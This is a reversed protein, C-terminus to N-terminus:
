SLRRVLDERVADAIETATAGTSLLPALAPALAAVLETVNVQGGTPQARVAAIINAEDDSLGDALADLKVELRQVTRAADSTYFLTDGITESVTHTEFYQPTGVPRSRSGPSEYTLKDSWSLTVTDEQLGALVRARPIILNILEAIRRDGPCVKGPTTTWVEGGPVLGGFAYDTWNGPVGQRHYAVGRRTTRSDPVLELPVGHVRHCWALIQAISERQPATFGPVAHGDRTDWPGYEPGIDENEISIVRYNGEYNAASQVDTDRSQTIAGDSGTSFHAAQAPDHGVITHVCVVDHRSM